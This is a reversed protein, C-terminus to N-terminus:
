STGGYIKGGQLSGDVFATASNGSPCLLTGVCAAILPGIALASVTTGDANFISTAPAPLLLRSNSGAGDTFNLMVLQKGSLYASTAPTSGTLTDTGEWYESVIANSYNQLQTMITSLSANGRIVRLQTNGNADTWICTRAFTM